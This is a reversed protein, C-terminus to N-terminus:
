SERQLAEYSARLGQGYAHQDSYPASYADVYGPAPTPRRNAQQYRFEARALHEHDDVQSSNFRSQLHGGYRGDCDYGDNPYVAYSAAKDSSADFPPAATGQDEVPPMSVQLPPALPPPQVVKPLKANLAAMLEEKESASPLSTKAPKRRSPKNHHDMNHFFFGFNYFLLLKNCSVVKRSCYLHLFSKGLNLSSVM